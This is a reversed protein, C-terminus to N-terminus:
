VQSDSSQEMSVDKTAEELTKLQALAVLANTKAILLPSLMFSGDISRLAYIQCGNDIAALNVFNIQRQLHDLMTLLASNLDLDM